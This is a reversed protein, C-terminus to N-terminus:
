IIELKVKTMNLMAGWSLGPASLYHSLCLKYSKLSSNRFKKLCIQWCFFNYKLHLDHYIKMAKMEFKNWVKLVHDYEKGSIKKGIFSSNFKEKSILEEKFKKFDSMYEYPYFEKQKVLDLVNSHFEYSLYKFDVKDLNKVLSDLLSNLFQFSNTFILKNSGNFSMYKELGNPIVNIKFDFKGLKQM